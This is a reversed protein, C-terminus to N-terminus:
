SLSLSIRIDGRYQYTNGIFIHTETTQNVDMLTIYPIILTFHAEFHMKTTSFTVSSPINPTNTTNSYNSSFHPRIHVKTHRM